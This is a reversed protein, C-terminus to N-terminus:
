SMEEMAKLRAEYELASTKASYEAEMVQHEKLKSDLIFNARGQRIQEQLLEAELSLKRNTIIKEKRDHRMMKLAHEYQQKEFDVKEQWLTAERMLAMAMMAQRTRYEFIEFESRTGRSHNELTQARFHSLIFGADPNMRPTKDQIFSKLMLMREDEGKM